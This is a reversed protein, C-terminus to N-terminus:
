AQPQQTPTKFAPICLVFVASQLRRSCPRNKQRCPSFSLRPVARHGYGVPVILRCRCFLRPAVCPDCGVLVPPKTKRYPLSEWGERYKTNPKLPLMRRSTNNKYACAEAQPQQTQNFAPICLVFVASQLRRSCPPNKVAPHFRFVRYCVLSTIGLPLDGRAGRQSLPNPRFAVCPDGGVLVPPKTKM